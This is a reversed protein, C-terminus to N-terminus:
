ASGPTAARGQFIANIADTAEKCADAAKKTGQQLPTVLNNYFAATIDPDLQSARAYEAANLVATLEPQSVNKPAQIAKALSRRAPLFSQKQLENALAAMAPYARAPDAARVTMVLADNVVLTTARASDHFPEGFQLSTPLNDGVTTMLMAVRAGNYTMQGSPKIPWEYADKGPPAIVKYSTFLDGYFTAAEIAALEDLTCHQGDASLLAGGHQWLFFEPTPFNTPAFAYQSPPKTLRTAADLLHAWDWTQPSQVGAAPLQNLDALLLYPEIATPLGYLKGAIRCTNLAQPYYDQQDTTRDSRVQSDIALVLPGGVLKQLLWPTYIQAPNGALLLLDPSPTGGAANGMYATEINQFTSMGAAYGSQGPPTGPIWTITKDVAVGNDAVTDVVQQYTRRYNAQDAATLNQSMIGALHVPRAPIVTPPPQFAAPVLQCGALPLAAMGAMTGLVM